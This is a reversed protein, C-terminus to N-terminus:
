VIMNCLPHRGEVSQSIDGLGVCNSIPGFATGSFSYPTTCAMAVNNIALNGVAGPTLDRFGIGCGTAMCEHLLTRQGRLEFGSGGPVNHVNCDCCESFSGMVMGRITPGTADVDWLVSRTAHEMDVATGFGRIDGDNITINEGDCYIGQSASGPSTDILHFGWLDLYVDSALIAIGGMGAPAFLNRTLVYYGPQTIAYLHAPGPQLSEVPTGPNACGVDTRSSRGAVADLPVGTPSPPGPPELVGAQAKNTLVSAAVVGGLGALLMRRDVREKTLKM